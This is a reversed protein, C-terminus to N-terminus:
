RRTHTDRQAERERREQARRQYQEYQWALILSGAVVFSLTILVVSGWTVIGPLALLAYAILVIGVGVVVTAWTFDPNYAGEQKDLWRAYRWVVIALVAFVGCIVITSNFQYQM